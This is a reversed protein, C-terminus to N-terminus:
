KERAPHKNSGTLREIRSTQERKKTNMFSPTLLKQLSITMYRHQCNPNQPRRHLCSQKITNLIQPNLINRNRCNSCSLNKNPYPSRSGTTRIQLNEMSTINFANNLQGSNKPMLPRPIHNLNGRTQIPGPLAHSHTCTIACRTQMTSHTLSTLIIQTLIHHPKPSGIRFIDLHRRPHHKYVHLLYRFTDRIQFGCNSLRQCTYEM